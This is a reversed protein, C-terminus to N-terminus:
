NLFCLLNMVFVLCMQRQGPGLCKMQMEGSDWMQKGAQIEREM